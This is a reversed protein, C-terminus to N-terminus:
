SYAQQAVSEIESLISDLQYQDNIFSLMGKWFSQQVAPPMLDGAGFRFTTAETLMEASAQAVPNPYADLNVLKNASTFGGRKVWITQAEASALYKVLERVASNDQMVVVLDAGGTVVGQYQPNITPFRFFDFDTGPKARPFQSTIFGPTFDGLYYMYAQPPSTFPEYSAAQFSTALITRPAGSIYHKSGVIQGFLQFASRISADTWPIIHAVWRDYMDPGSQRLYIEAIWDTAPWGSAAGSEVGMSWPYKGRQSITDSLSILDSWAIPIHAKIEKFHIPNYWVTGKNTAKYFLAYFRNNYSGLDVWSRAYNRRIESMELFTDLPILANKSALQQMKGPNPLIAIDPPNDGLIRTTLVADLDRTSEISVAIGTKGTFPAVVARFSAQEEAGWVNLVEVSASTLDGTASGGEGCAALLSAASSATLGLAVARQLFTRRNLGKRSCEEVLQDVEDWQHHDFISM